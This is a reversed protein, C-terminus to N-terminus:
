GFLASAAKDRDGAQIDSSKPTIDGSTRDDAATENVVNRQKGNYEDIGVTGIFEKGIMRRMIEDTDADDSDNFEGLGVQTLFNSFRYLAKPTFFFKVWLQRGKYEPHDEVVCTLDMYETGSRSTKIEAAKVSLYYEGPTLVDYEKKSSGANNNKNGSAKKLNLGM